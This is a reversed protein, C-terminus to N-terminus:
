GGRNKKLFLKVELYGKYAELGANIVILILLAWLPLIFADSVVATIQTMQKREGGEECRHGRGAM